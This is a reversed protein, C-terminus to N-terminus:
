LSLGYIGTPASQLDLNYLFVVLGIFFFLLAIHMLAPLMGIIGRLHWKELGYFRFQRIQVRTSASGSVAAVYNQLWQKVLVSVLATGLSFALSTFWLGNVWRDNAAAKFPSTSNVQSVPVSDFSIGQSAARQLGVLETLLSASVMAYDPQLAQSTQVVFTTVVASFLGAFVLLVDITDKWSDIMDKDFAEAEDLYVRWVRANPGLEEGMEDAPYKCM